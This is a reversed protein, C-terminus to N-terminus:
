TLTAVSINSVRIADIAMDQALVGDVSSSCRVDITNRGSTPFTVVDSLILEGGGVLVNAAAVKQFGVVTLPHKSTGNFFLRCRVAGVVDSAQPYALALRAFVLNKGVVATSDIRAISTEGGATAVPIEIDLTREGHVVVDAAKTLFADSDIGDLKDANAWKTKLLETTLKAKGVSKAALDQNQVGKDVIEASGVAGTAIAARDVAGSAISKTRVAGTALKSSTVAGNRLKGATVAGGALRVTGVAGAQIKSSTVAGNAIKATTVANDALRNTGVLAAAWGTGGTAAVLAALALANASVLGITTRSPRRRM